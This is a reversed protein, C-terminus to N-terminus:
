RGEKGVRREESRYDGNPSPEEPEKQPGRPNSGDPFGLHFYWSRSRYQQCSQQTQVHQPRHSAGPSQYPQVEHHAHNNSRGTKRPLSSHVSPHKQRFSAPQVSDSQRQLPSPPEDDPPHLNQMSKVAKAISAKPMCCDIPSSAAPFPLRTLGAPPHRLPYKGNSAADSRPAQIQPSPNSN